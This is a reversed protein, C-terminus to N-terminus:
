EGKSKKLEAVEKTLTEIAEQDKERLKENAYIYVGGAIALLAFSKNLRNQARLNKIVLGTDHKLMHLEGFIYGFTKDM